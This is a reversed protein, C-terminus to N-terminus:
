EGDDRYRENDDLNKSGKTKVLVLNLRLNAQRNRLYDIAVLINHSHEEEDNTRELEHGVRRNLNTKAEQPKM